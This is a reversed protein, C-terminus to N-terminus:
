FGNCVCTHCVIPYIMVRSNLGWGMAVFRLILSTIFPRCAESLPGSFVAAPSIVCCRVPGLGEPATGDRLLAAVIAAVGGVPFPYASESECCSAFLLLQFNLEEQKCTLM